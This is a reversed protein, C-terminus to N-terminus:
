QVFDKESDVVRIFCKFVWVPSFGDSHERQLQDKIAEPWFGNLHENHSFDKLSEDHRMLCTLIWLASFRKM